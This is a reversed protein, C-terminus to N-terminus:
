RRKIKKLNYKSIDEIKRAHKEFNEIYENENEANHVEQGIAMLGVYVGLEKSKYLTEFEKNKYLIRVQLNEEKHKFIKFGEPLEINSLHHNLDPHTPNECIRRKLELLSKEIINKIKVDSNEYYKEFEDSVYFIEFQSKYRNWLVLGLPNFTYYSGAFELLSYIDPNIKIKEDLERIGEKELQLFFRENEEFVKTNFDIPLYPIKILADTDEFIYYIPCKHVQGLITLYPITAKYGGTINIIMDQWNYNAIRHIKNILSVMGELFERRNWVQLGNIVEVKIEDKNAIDLIKIQPLIEELIEGALKSLITDSCLLYIELMDRLEEKLKLISKIEASIESINNKWQQSKIWKIVESRIIGIREREDDWDKSRREELEKCFNEFDKNKMKEKYNEFISTGVMTIMKKM